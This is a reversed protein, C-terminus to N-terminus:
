INRAPFGRIESNQFLHATTVCVEAKEQVKQVFDGREGRTPSGCIEIFAQCEPCQWGMSCHVVSLHLSLSQSLLLDLYAPLSSSTLSRFVSGRISNLSHVKILIKMNELPWTHIYSNSQSSPQTSFFQHRQVTTSSFVRSLGKFQFSIWGTWGLPSWDQTNM